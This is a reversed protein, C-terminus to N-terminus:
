CCDADIAFIYDRCLDQQQHPARRKKNPRASLCFALVSLLEDDGRCFM